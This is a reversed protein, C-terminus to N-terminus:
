DTRVCNQVKMPLLKKDFKHGFKRNELAIFQKVSLIGLKNTNANRCIYSVCSTLVKEIRALQTQNLMNGWVSLCYTLHSQIHSFYVIKKAYTSLLNQGTRLLHRNRKLKLILNNVHKEWKLNCDVWVGLFKTDQISPLVINEIEINVKIYMCVYMCVSKTLNLTLKNARFWDM